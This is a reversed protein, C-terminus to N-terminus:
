AAETEVVVGRTSFLVLMLVIGIISAAVDWPDYVQVGGLRHLNFEQTLVYIATFLTAMTYIMGDSFSRLGGGFKRRAVFLLAAVVSMGLIAEFTNPASLVVIDLVVPADSELVMRRVFLKNVMFLGMTWLYLRVLYRRLRVPGRGFGAPTEEVGTSV